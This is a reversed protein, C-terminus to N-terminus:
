NRWPIEKERSELKESYIGFVGLFFQSSRLILGDSLGILDSIYFPKLCDTVINIWMLYNVNNLENLQNPQKYTFRVTRLVDHRLLRPPFFFLFCKGM